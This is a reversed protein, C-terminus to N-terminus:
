QCETVAYGPMLICCIRGVQLAEDYIPLYCLFQNDGSLWDKNVMIILVM